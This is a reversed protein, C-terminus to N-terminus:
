SRVSLTREKERKQTARPASANAFLDPVSLGSAAEMRKDSVGRGDRRDRQLVLVDDGSPVVRVDPDPVKRARRRLLLNLEGEEKNVGRRTSLGIETSEQGGDVQGGGGKSVENHLKALMRGRVCESPLVSSSVCVCVKGPSVYERKKSVRCSKRRGGGGAGSHGRFRAWLVLFRTAEAETGLEGLAAVLAM